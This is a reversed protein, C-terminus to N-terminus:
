RRIHFLIPCNGLYSIRPVSEDLPGSKLTCAEVGGDVAEFVIELKM